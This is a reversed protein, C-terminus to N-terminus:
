LHGRQEFVVSPLEPNTDVVGQRDVRATDITFDFSRIPVRYAKHRSNDFIYLAVDPNLGISRGSCQDPNTPQRHLFLKWFRLHRASTSDCGIGRASDPQTKEVAIQSMILVAPQRCIRESVVPCCGNLLEQRIGFIPLADHLSLTYIETTATDTFFFFVTARVECAIHGVEYFRWYVLYDYNAVTVQVDVERVNERRCEADTM